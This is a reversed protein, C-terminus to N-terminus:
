FSKGIGALFRLDPLAHVADGTYKKVQISGKGQKHIYYLATSHVFSHDRKPFYELYMGEPILPSQM